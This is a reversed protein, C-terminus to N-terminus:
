PTYPFFIELRSNKLVRRSLNNPKCTFHILYSHLTKPPIKLFFSTKTSFSSFSIILNQVVQLILQDGFEGGPSIHEFIYRLDPPSM